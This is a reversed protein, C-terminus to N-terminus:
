MHVSVHAFFCFPLMPATIAKNARFKNPYISENVCMCVCNSTFGEDTYIKILELHSPHKSISSM